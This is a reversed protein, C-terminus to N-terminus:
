PRRHELLMRCCEFEEDSLAKLRAFEVNNVLLVILRESVGFSFGIRGQSVFPLATSVLAMTAPNM